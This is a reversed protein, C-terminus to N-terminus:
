KQLNLLRCANGSFINEKQSDPISLSDLFRITDEPNDWPCDSAFLVQQTGHKAILKEATERAMIHACYATDLYVNKGALVQLVEEWQDYGGFHACIMILKPFLKAVRATRHPPAHILEPSVADFGCHFVIPLKLQACADYLEFLREDDIMFNQFDPHLKVGKLGLSKLRVLEKFVDPADPHLAGFGIIQNPYLSQQQSIWDNIRDPQNPKTAVSLMVFKDVGWGAMKNLTDSVTADTYMPKSGDANLAHLARPALADTFTHVHFDIVM